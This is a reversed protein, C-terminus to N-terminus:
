DQPHKAVWHCFKVGWIVKVEDADRPMKPACVGEHLYVAAHEEWAEDWLGSDIFSQLTQRGGEVLLSQIGRRHLEKLMSDIDPMALVDAPLEEDSLNGLVCRLPPTGFWRRLDLRPNDADWTTHGVLIAEHDARQQHVHLQTAPTSLRAAPGSTRLADIFGDASRAWKLTIYPRQMSHFTIFRRNLWLCEEELVGVKVEIGAERLMAIGKGKVKAFPDICGIVCRPIGKRIILEACPPTRGYHACPELTVYITSEHLLHRDDESVSNIANVEAHGEGARIHYGEGIIRGQAMIVAGVMPNPATTNKGLRALQLARLMYKEDDTAANTFSQKSKSM